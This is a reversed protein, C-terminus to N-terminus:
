TEKISGLHEQDPSCNLLFEEPAEQEQEQDRLSQQQQQQQQQDSFFFGYDWINGASRCRM